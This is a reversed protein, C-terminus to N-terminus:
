FLEYHCRIGLVLLCCGLQLLCRGLHLDQLLQLGVRLVLFSGHELLDLRFSFLVLLFFLEELVLYSRHLFLDLLENRLVVGLLLHLESLNLLLV